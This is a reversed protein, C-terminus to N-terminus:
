RASSGGRGKQMQEAVIVGLDSEEAITRVPPESVHM